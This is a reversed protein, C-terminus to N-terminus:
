PSMQKRSPRSTSTALVRGNGAFAIWIQAGKPTYANVDCAHASYGSKRSNRAAFDAYSPM